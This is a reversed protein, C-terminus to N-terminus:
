RGRSLIEIRGQVSSIAVIGSIGDARGISGRRVEGKTRQTLQVSSRVQAEWTTVEFSASGGVPLLIRVNGSHTTLEFRGGAPPLGDIAITGGWTSSTITRPMAGGVRMTGSVSEITLDGDISEARVDKATSRLYVKGGVHEASVLAEVARLRVDGRVERATIPAYVTTVQAGADLGRLHVAGDTVGIKVPSGAPVTAVISIRAPPGGDTNNRRIRITM